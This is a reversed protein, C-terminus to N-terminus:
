FESRRVVKAQELAAQDDAVEGKAIQQIAVFASFFMLLVLLIVGPQQGMGCFRADRRSFGLSM